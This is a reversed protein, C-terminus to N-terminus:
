GMSPQEGGAQEGVWSMRYDDVEASPGPQDQKGEALEIGQGTAQLPLIGSPAWICSLGPASASSGADLVTGAVAGLQGSGSQPRGRPSIQPLYM